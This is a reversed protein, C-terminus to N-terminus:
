KCLTNMLASNVITVFRFYDLYSEVTPCTPSNCETSLVGLTLMEYVPGEPLFVPCWLFCLANLMHSIQVCM